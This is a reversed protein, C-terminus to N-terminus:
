PASTSGASQIGSTLAMEGWMLPGDIESGGGYPLPVLCTTKERRFPRRLQDNGPGSCCTHQWEGSAECWKRMDSAARRRCWQGLLAAVSAKSCRLHPTPSHFVGVGLHQSKRKQPEGCAHYAALCSLDAQSEMGGDARVREVPFEEARERILLMLEWISSRALFIPLHQSAAEYALPPSGKMGVHLSLHFNWAPM